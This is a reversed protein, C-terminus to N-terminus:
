VRGVAHAPRARTAPDLPTEDPAGKASSAPRVTSSWELRRGPLWRDLLPVLPSLIALAWIPGAPRYAVTAFVFALAAVGAGFLLRGPRSDPTQRPDSIMFFAFLMLGGSGVVHLPTAWPQGLWVARGFTLTAFGALFSLTVDGRLARHTVFGGACAIGFALTATDGWQAPSVWALGARGPSGGTLLVMAVIAVNSPNFVHKGRVRVAFKGAIAIASAAAGLWPHAVRLLLCLSLASILASRPEFRPLGALRGCLWQTAVAAALTLVIQIPPIAFGLAWEGWLLLTALVAIQWDRVDHASALRELLHRM